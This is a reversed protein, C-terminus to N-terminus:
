AGTSAAEGRARRRFLIVVLCGALVIHLGLAGALIGKLAGASGRAVAIPGVQVLAEGREDPSRRAAVGVVAVEEPRMGEVAGAVLARVAAERYPPAGAGHRILVSARPRPREEDLAFHRTEPIAVHVRADLVGDIRELSRALEGGLAAAYRAREETATPVLSGEGFVDHLGPEPRRPVNTARLLRLARGIDDRAVRVEFRSGDAGELREKEAGIGSAELAAVVENAQEEALDSEVAAHCAGLLGVGFAAAAVWRSM